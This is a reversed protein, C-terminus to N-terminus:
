GHGGVNGDTYIAILIVVVAVTLALGGGLVWWQLQARRNAAYQAQKKEKATMKTGSSKSKTKSMDNLGM